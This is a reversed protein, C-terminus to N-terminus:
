SVTIASTDTDLADPTEVTQGPDAIVTTVFQGSGGTTATLNIVAGQGASLDGHCVLTTPTGPSTLPPGAHPYVDCSWPNS